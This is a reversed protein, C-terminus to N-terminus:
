VTVGKDADLLAQLGSVTAQLRASGVADEYQQWVIETSRTLEAIFARGQDTFDILKARSDSPDPRREVLKLEELEHVIVMMSQPRIGASHALDVSRSAGNQGLQLFVERHRSGVGKIGRSRLDQDLRRQFDRAALMLIQGIQHPQLDPM